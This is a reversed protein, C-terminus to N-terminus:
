VPRAARFADRIMRGPETLQVRDCNALVEDGNAFPLAFWDPLALVDISMTLQRIRSGIDFQRLGQRARDLCVALDSARCYAAPAVVQLSVHRADTVPRHQLPLKDRHMRGFVYAAGYGIIQRLAESASDSQWKLEVLAAYRDPANWFVLDVNRRRDMRSSGIGSATPCQNFWGQMHGRAALIAVAKEIMTEESTNYSSINTARRLRWLQTSTSAPSPCNTRMRRYIEGIDDLDRTNDFLSAM